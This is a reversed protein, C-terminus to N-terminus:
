TWCTALRHRLRHSIPPPQHNYTLFVGGFFLIETVLFIWMGLTATEKQQDLTKYQGFLEGTRHV